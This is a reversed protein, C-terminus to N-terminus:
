QQYSLPLHGATCIWMSGNFFTMGLISMLFMFFWMVFLLNVINPISNFLSQIALKLGRNKNLLRLPRLVRLVRLTKLSKLNVGSFVMSILASSVITFDLINWPNRIYSTKGCAAFGLAIIKSICECYFFSSM